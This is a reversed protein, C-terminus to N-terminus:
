VDPTVTVAGSLKITATATMLEETAVNVTFGTLLGGVASWDAASTAGIKKFTLTVAAQTDAITAFIDLDPNFQLECTLEGPDYLDGNMFTRAVTSGLHTTELSTAEIGSWDISTVIHGASGLATNTSADAFVLTTAIGTTGVQPALFAM